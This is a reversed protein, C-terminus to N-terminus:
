VIIFPFEQKQKVLKPPGHASVLSLNAGREGSGHLFIMLPWSQSKDKPNYDKPLYLLYGLDVTRTIKASYKQRYQMLEADPKNSSAVALLSFGSMLILFTKKM